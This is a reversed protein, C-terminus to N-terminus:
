KLTVARVDMVIPAHHHVTMEGFPKGTVQVAKGVAQSLRRRVSKDTSFIHIRKTREVQDYEDPGTMCAPTKLELILTVEPRGVLDFFRVRTLRGEASGEQLSSLCEAAAAGVLMPLALIAALLRIM